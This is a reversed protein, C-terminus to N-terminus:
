DTSRDFGIRQESRMWWFKHDGQTLRYTRNTNDISISPAKGDVESSVGRFTEGAPLTYEKGSPKMKFRVSRGSDNRITYRIKEVTPPILNRVSATLSLGDKVVRADIQVGGLGNELARRVERKAKGSAEAIAAAGDELILDRLDIRQTLAAHSAAYIKGKVTAEIGIDGLLWNTFWNNSSVRIDRYNTSTILHLREVRAFLPVEIWGSDKAWDTYVKGGLPIKTWGRAKADYDFKVAIRDGSLSSRVNKTYATQSDTNVQYGTLQENGVQDLIPLFDRAPINITLKGGEYTVTPEAFATTLPWLLLLVSALLSGFGGISPITGHSMAKEM